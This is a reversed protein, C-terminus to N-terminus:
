VVTSRYTADTRMVQVADTETEVRALALREEDASVSM